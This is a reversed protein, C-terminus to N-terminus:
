LTFLFIVYEELFFFFLNCIFILNLRVDSKEDPKSLFNIQIQFEVALWFYWWFSFKSQAGSIHEERESITFNRGQCKRAIKGGLFQGPFPRVIFIIKM